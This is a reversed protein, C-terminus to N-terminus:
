YTTAKQLFPSFTAMEGNTLQELAAGIAIDSADVTLATPTAQCPHVLLTATALAM